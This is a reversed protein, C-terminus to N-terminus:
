VVVSIFAFLDSFFVFNHFNSFSLETQRKLEHFQSDRTETSKTVSANTDDEGMLESSRVHYPLKSCCQATSSLVLTRTNSFLSQTIRRHITSPCFRFKFM